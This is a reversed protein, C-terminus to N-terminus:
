SPSDIWISHTRRRRAAPRLESASPIRWRNAWSPDVPRPTVWRLTVRRLAVWRLKLWCPKGRRPEVWSDSGAGGEVLRLGRDGCEGVCDFRAVGLREVLDEAGLAPTDECRSICDGVLIRTFDERDGEGLLPLQHIICGVFLFEDDSVLLPRKRNRQLLVTVAPPEVGCRSFLFHPCPTNASIFERGDSGTALVHVGLAIVGADAVIAFRGPEEGLLHM